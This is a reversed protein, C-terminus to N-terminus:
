DNHDGDMIEKELQDLMAMMAVSRKSMEEIRLRCSALNKSDCAAIGTESTLIAVQEQLIDITDAADKLLAFLYGDEKFDAYAEAKVRLQRSIDSM